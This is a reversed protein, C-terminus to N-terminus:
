RSYKNLVKSDDGESAMSLASTLKATRSGIFSPSFAQALGLSFLICGAVKIM